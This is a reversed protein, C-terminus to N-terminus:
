PAARSSDARMTTLRRNDAQPELMARPLKWQEVMAELMLSEGDAVYGDGEAAAICLRLVKARLDPDNVQALLEALMSPDLQCADAGIPPAASFLDDCVGHIVGKFERAQCGLQECARLRELADLEAKCIRGDALMALVVIRAAAQPSDRPYSRM